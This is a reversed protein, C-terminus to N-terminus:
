ASASCLTHIQDHLQPLGYGRGSTRGTEAAAEAVVEHLGTLIAEMTTPM